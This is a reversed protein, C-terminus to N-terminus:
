VVWSTQGTHDLFNDQDSYHTTPPAHTAAVLFKSDNPASDVPQPSLFICDGDDGDQRDSVGGSSNSHNYGDVGPESSQFTAQSTPLAVLGTMSETADVVRAPAGAATLGGIPAPSAAASAADLEDPLELSGFYPIRESMMM